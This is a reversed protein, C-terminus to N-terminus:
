AGRAGGVIRSAVAAADRILAGMGAASVERGGRYVVVCEGAGEVTRDFGPDLGEFFDLVEPKFLRRVASEDDARTRFRQSFGPHSEFDIDRQGMAAAIRQVLGTRSVEFGPLALGPFRFTVVTQAVSYTKGPDSVHRTQYTYDFAVMNGGAGPGAMVNSASRHDVDSGFLGLHRLETRELGRKSLAAALRPELMKMIEPPPQGLESVMAAHLAASDAEFSAEKFLSRLASEDGKASFSLGLEDAVRRLAQTRRQGLLLLAAVVAAALFLGGAILIWMPVPPLADRYLIGLFFLLAVPVGILAGRNFQVGRRKM